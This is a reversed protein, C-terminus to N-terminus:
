SIGAAHPRDPHRSRTVSCPVFHEGCVPSLEIDCTAHLLAAVAKEFTEGGKRGDQEAILYFQDVTQQTTRASFTVNHGARIDSAVVRRM